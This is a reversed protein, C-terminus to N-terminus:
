RENLEERSYMKFNDGAIPNLFIDPLEGFPKTLSENHRGNAEDWNFKRVKTDIALTLWEATDIDFEDDNVVMVRIKTGIKTKYEDPIRIFENEATAQFQYALM